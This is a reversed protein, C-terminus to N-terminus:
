KKDSGPGGPRKATVGSKSDRHSVFEKKAEDKNKSTSDKQDKIPHKQYEVKPEDDTNVHPKSEDKQSDKQENKQFDGSPVDVSSREDDYEKTEQAVNERQISAHIAICETDNTKIETHLETVSMLDLEVISLDDTVLQVVRKEDLFRLETINNYEKDKIELGPGTTGTIRVNLM